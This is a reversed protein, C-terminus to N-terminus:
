ESVEVTINAVRLADRLIQCNPGLGDIEVPPNLFVWAANEIWGPGNGEMREAFAEHDHHFSAEHLDFQFACLQDWDFIDMQRAVLGEPVEADPDDQLPIDDGVDEAINETYAGVVIDVAVWQEDTWDRWTTM